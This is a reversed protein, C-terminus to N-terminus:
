SREYVSRSLGIWMINITILALYKIIFFIILGRDEQLEYGLSYLCTFFYRFLDYFTHQPLFLMPHFGSSLCRVWLPCLRGHSEWPLWRKTLFQLICYGCVIFPTTWFFPLFVGINLCLSYCTHFSFICLESNFVISFTQIIPQPTAFLLLSFDPRIASKIHFMGSKWLIRYSM